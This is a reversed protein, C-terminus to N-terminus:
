TLHDTLLSLDKELIHILRPMFKPDSKNDRRSILIDVDGCTEQGRRYSGCPIIEYIDPKLQNEIVIM